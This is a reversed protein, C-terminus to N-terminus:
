FSPRRGPGHSRIGTILTVDYTLLRTFSVVCNELPRGVTVTLIAGDAPISTASNYRALPRNEDVAATLQVLMLDNLYSENTYSPHRIMKRVM